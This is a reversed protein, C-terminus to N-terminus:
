ILAIVPGFQLRIETPSTAVGVTRLWAFAPAVPVEQTLIGSSGVFVPRGSQWSWSPDVLEGEAALVVPAGASAAHTTVAMSKWMDAPSSPDVYRASGSVVAVVRHGSLPVAAVETFASDSGAVAEGGTSPPLYADLPLPAGVPLAEVVMKRSVAMTRKLIKGVKFGQNVLSPDRRASTVVVVDGQAPEANPHFRLYSLPLSVTYSTEPILSDGEERNSTSSVTTSAVSCKGDYVLALDSDVITGTDRDLTGTLTGGQDRTIVCTDDMLREIAVEAFSLDPGTSTAM